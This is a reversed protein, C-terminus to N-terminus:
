KYDFNTLIIFKGFKNFRLSFRFKPQWRFILKKGNLHLSNWSFRQRELNHRSSSKTSFLRIKFLLEFDFTKLFKIQYSFFANSPRLGEFISKLYWISCSLVKSKATENVIRVKRWFNSSPSLKSLLTKRQIQTMKSMLFTIQWNM